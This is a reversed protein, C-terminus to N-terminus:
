YLLSGSLVSKLLLLLFPLRPIFVSFLLWSWIRRGSVRNCGGGVIIWLLLSWKKAPSHQSLFIDLHIWDVLIFGIPVAM